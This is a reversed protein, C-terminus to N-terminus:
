GLFRIKNSIKELTYINTTKYAFINDNDLIMDIHKDTWAQGTVIIKLDSNKSQLTMSALINDSISDLFFSTSPYITPLKKLYLIESIKHLLNLSYTKYELIYKLDVQNDICIKKLLDIELRLADYKRNCVAYNPCTIEISKAGNDIAKKVATEREEHGSLGFPYDIVTSLRVNKPINKRVTKIYQPLVSISSPCYDLAQHIKARTEKDNSDFDYYGYEIYQLM